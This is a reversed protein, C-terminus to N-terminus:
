DDVFVADTIELTRYKQLQAHFLSNSTIGVEKRLYDFDLEKGELVYRLPTIVYTLIECDPDWQMHCMRNKDVAPVNFWFKKREMLSELLIEEVAKLGINIVRLENDKLEKSVKKPRVIM